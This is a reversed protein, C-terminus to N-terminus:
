KNNKDITIIPFFLEKTKNEYILNDNHWVKDIITSNGGLIDPIDIQFTKYVAKFIHIKNNGFKVKTITPETESIWAMEKGNSTEIEIYEEIGVKKPMILGLEIYHINKDFHTHINVFVNKQPVYITPIESDPINIIEIDSLNYYGLITSDLLDNGNQDQLQFYLKNNYYSMPIDNREELVNDKECGILVFFITTLIFLKKM